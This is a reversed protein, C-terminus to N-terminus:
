RKYLILKHVVSSHSPAVVNSIDHLIPTKGFLTHLSSMIVSCPTLCCRIWKVANCKRLLLRRLLFQQQRCPNQLHINTMILSDLVFAPMNSVLKIDGLYRYTHMCKPPTTTTWRLCLKQLNLREQNETNKSTRSSRKFSKSTLSVVIKRPFNTIWVRFIWSVAIWRIVTQVVCIM